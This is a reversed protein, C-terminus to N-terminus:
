TARRGAAGCGIGRGARINTGGGDPGTLNHVLAAKPSAPARQLDAGRDQPLKELDTM